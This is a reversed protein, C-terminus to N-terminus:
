RGPDRGDRTRARRRRDAPPGPPSVAEPGGGLAEPHLAVFLSWPEGDPDSPRDAIEQLVAYFRGLVEDRDRETLRFGLRSTSLDGPRLRQAEELFTELLVDRDGAAPAPGGDMSWSKGSALYPVERSGRVGRRREQEILFGTDVLTRVHHLVTAPNRGVAEAIEKNTRPEHLAARLIQLRLPSALAKAEAEDPARRAWRRRPSGVPLRGYPAPLPEDDAPPELPDAATM